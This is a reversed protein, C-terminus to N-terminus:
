LDFRYIPIRQMIMLELNKWKALYSALRRGVKEELFQQCKKDM